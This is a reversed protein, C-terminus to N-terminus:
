MFADKFSSNASTVVVVSDVVVVGVVLLSVCYLWPDNVLFLVRPVGLKLASPAFISAGFAGLPTSDRSGSFKKRNQIKFLHIKTCVSHKKYLEDLAPKFATNPTPSPLIGFTLLKYLIGMFTRKSRNNPWCM